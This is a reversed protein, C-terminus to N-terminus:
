TPGFRGWLYGMSILVVGVVISFIIILAIFLFLKLISESPSLKYLKGYAYTYLFITIFTALLYVLPSTFVSLLFLIFTAVFSTGQIYSNFVLHEGYNYPKRYVLFAIFTYIPILILSLINFYKLAIEQSTKSGELQEKQFDPNSYQGGLNEAMWEIQTKNLEQSANIYDDLFFNLAFLMLTVGIILYSFPHVYKKRVGQAYEGLVLQPELIMLKLTVFYKNDWGLVNEAFESVMSKLDIRDVVKAGCKNCFRSENILLTKCNKCEM